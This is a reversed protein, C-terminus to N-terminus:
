TVHVIVRSRVLLFSFSYFQLITITHGERGAIPATLSPRTYLMGGHQKGIERRIWYGFCKVGDIGATM